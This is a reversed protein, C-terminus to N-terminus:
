SHILASYMRVRDSHLCNMKNICFVRSKNCVSLMQTNFFLTRHQRYAYVYTHVACVFGIENRGVNVDNKKDLMFIPYM